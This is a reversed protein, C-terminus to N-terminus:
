KTPNFFSKAPKHLDADCVRQNCHLMSFLGAKFLFSIIETKKKGTKEGCVMSVAMDMLAIAVLPTTGPISSQCECM